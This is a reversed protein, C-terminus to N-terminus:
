GLDLPENNGQRAAAELAGRYRWMLGGTGLFLLGLIAPVFVSWSTDKELVAESPNKPDYYVPITTGGPFAKAAEEADSRERYKEHTTGLRYRDGTYQVGDVSWSYRINPYYERSYSTSRSGSSRSTSVKVTTSLIRGKAEPWSRAEFGLQVFYVGFGCMALGLVILGWTFVRLM